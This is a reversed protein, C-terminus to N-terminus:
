KTGGRFTELGIEDRESLTFASKMQVYAEHKGYTRQSLLVDQKAVASLIEDTAAAIRQDLWDLYNARTEPSFKLAKMWIPDNQSMYSSEVVSRYSHVFM